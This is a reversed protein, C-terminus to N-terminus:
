LWRRLDALRTRIHKDTNSRGRPHELQRPHSIQLVFVPVNGTRTMFMIDIVMLDESAQPARLFQSKYTFGSDPLSFLTQILLGYSPHFDPEIPNAPILQFQVLIVDPWTMTACANFRTQLRVSFDFGNRVHLPFTSIAPEIPSM